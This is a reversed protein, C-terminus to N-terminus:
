RIGKVMDEFNDRSVSSKNKVKSRYNYITNVSYRLFEAIQSSDEIGLRILAFIRLETNLLEGRKLLIKADDQLLANFQPVFNPFIHLFASDFNMYLEELEHELAEQSRTMKLLESIQGVSLKKNVMRRYADLKDIYTSCLKVFRVIYEEKIQNAESLDLNLSRLSKNLQELQDNAEQLHNRAVSLKRMQWYIYVLAGSLLVFLTTILLVYQELRRNQKEIMAQYTKDILSLIDASQWSRLRANYFKTQDWSFRMYRYAREIDGKEYLLQALNWLSAHDSIAARVDALSSLTLYQLERKKDGLQRFLQSRHYTVLAYEPLDAKLGNLLTDNILLAGKIDGDAMKRLEKREFYAYSGEPLINLLSDEFCRSKNFYSRKSSIDQTYAGLEGYFRCYCDYYKRLLVESLETRDVQSLKESAEEYMGISTMLYALQIRTEEILFSKGHKEAWEMNRNLYYIASDCVYPKYELYLSHNLNYYGMTLTDATRLSEKLREIRAERVAAYQKYRGIANDLAVLCSDINHVIPGAFVFKTVFLGALLLLKLKM